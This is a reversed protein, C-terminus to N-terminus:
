ALRHVSVMDWNVMSIRHADLELCVEVIGYNIDIFENM